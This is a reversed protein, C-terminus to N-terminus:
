RVLKFKYLAATEVFGYKLYYDGARRSPVVVEKANQARADEIVRSLIKRGIGLNRHEVAVMLEQLNWIEGNADLTVM